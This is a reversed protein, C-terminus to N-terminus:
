IIVRLIHNQKENRSSHHESSNQKEERQRRRSVRARSRQTHRFFILMANNGTSQVARVCHGFIEKNSFMSRYPKGLRQGSKFYEVMPHTNLSENLKVTFIGFTTDSVFVPLVEHFM